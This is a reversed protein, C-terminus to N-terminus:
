PREGCFPCESGLKEHPSIQRHCSNCSPWHSFEFNCLERKLILPTEEIPPFPPNLALEAKQREQWTPDLKRFLRPITGHELLSYAAPWLEKAPQHALMASTINFGRKKAAALLGPILKEPRTIVDGAEDVFPALIVEKQKIITKDLTSKYDLSLMRYLFQCLTLRLDRIVYRTDRMLPIYHRHM